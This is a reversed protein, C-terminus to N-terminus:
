SVMRLGSDFNGDSRKYHIRCRLNYALAEVLKTKIGGGFSGSKSIGPKRDPIVDLNEVFGLIRISPYSVTKM